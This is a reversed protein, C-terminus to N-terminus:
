PGTIIGVDDAVIRRQTPAPGTGGEGEGRAISWRIPNTVIYERIRALDADDRVVHDHFSRQWLGTIGANRSVQAKVSGVIARIDVGDVHTLVVAHVHDPMVISCDVAAPAHDPVSRLAERRLEGLHNLRVNGDRVLGFVNGRRSACFTVFTAAVCAYDWLPLRPSRRRPM